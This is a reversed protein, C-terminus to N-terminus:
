TYYPPPAVGLTSTYEGSDNIASRLGDRRSRSRRCLVCVAFLGVLLVLLCVFPVAVITVYMWVRTGCINSISNTQNWSVGSLSQYPLPAQLLAFNRSSLSVPVSCSSVNNTINVSCQRVIDSATVAYETRNFTMEARITCDSKSTFAFYYRDEKSVSYTYHGSAKDSFTVVHIAYEDSHYRKWSLFNNSGRILYFTASTSGKVVTADDLTFVSGPYLYFDEYNYSEADSDYVQLLTFNHRASLNPAKDLLYLSMDLQDSRVSLSKCFTSSYSVLHTDGPSYKRTIDAETDDSYYLSVAMLVLVVLAVFLVSVFCWCWRQGWGERQDSRHHGHGHQHLLQRSEKDKEGESM